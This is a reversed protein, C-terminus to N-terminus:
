ELHLVQVIYSQTGLQTCYHQAEQAVPELIEVQDLPEQPAAFSAIKVVLSAPVPMSIPIPRSARISAPCNGASKM